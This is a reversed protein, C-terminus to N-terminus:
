CFYFLKSMYAIVVFVQMHTYVPYLYARLPTVFSIIEKIIFIAYENTVQYHVSIARFLYLQGAHNM